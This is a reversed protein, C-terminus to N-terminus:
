SCRETQRKTAMETKRRRARARERGERGEWGGRGEITGRTAGTERVQSTTRGETAGFHEVDADGGFLRSMVVDLRPSLDDQFNM